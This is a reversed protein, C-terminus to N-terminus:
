VKTKAIWNNIIRELVTLPVSGGSLVADHFARINFQNGLEMKAKERLELIKMMGIKYATAQGPYVIYRHVESRILGDSISSNEKFYTIAEEESWGKAHIGTDVVLRIARWIEANLRGFDNYPDEFGGM